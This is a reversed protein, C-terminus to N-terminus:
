EVHEKVAKRITKEKREIRFYDTMEHSNPKETFGCLFRNKGAFHGARNEFFQSCDPLKYLSEGTKKKTKRINM